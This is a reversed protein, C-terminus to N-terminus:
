LLSWDPPPTLLAESARQQMKGRNRDEQVSIRTVFSFRGGFNPRLFKNYGATLNEFGPLSLKDSRSVEVNFQNGQICTRSPLIAKTAIDLFQHVYNSMFKISMGQTHAHKHIHVYIHQACVSM